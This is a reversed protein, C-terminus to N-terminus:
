LDIRRDGGLFGRSSADSRMMMRVGFSEEWGILSAAFSLM